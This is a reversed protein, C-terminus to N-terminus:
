DRLHWCINSPRILLVSPGCPRLPYVLPWMRTECGVRQATSLWQVRVIYVERQQELVVYTVLRGDRLAHDPSKRGAQVAQRGM